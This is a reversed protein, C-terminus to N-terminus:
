MKVGNMFCFLVELYLILSVSLWKYWVVRKQLSSTELLAVRNDISAWLHDPVSQKHESYKEQIRKDFEMNELEDNM